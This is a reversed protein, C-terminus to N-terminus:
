ALGIMERVDRRLLSTLIGKNASHLTRMSQGLQAVVTPDTTKERTIEEGAVSTRHTGTIQISTAQATPAIAVQMHSLYVIGNSAYPELFGYDIQWGGRRMLLRKPLVDTDADFIDRPDFESIAGDHFFEDVYQLGIVTVKTFDLITPMALLFLERARDWADTFRTYTSFSVAVFKNTIRLFESWDTASRGDRFHLEDISGADARAFPQAAGVSLSVTLGDIQSRSPLVKISEASLADVARMGTPGLDKDFELAFAM